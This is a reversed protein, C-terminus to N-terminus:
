KEILEDKIEKEDSIKTKETAGEKMMTHFDKEMNM